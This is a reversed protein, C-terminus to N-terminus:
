ASARSAILAVRCPAKRLVDRITGQVRRGGCAGGVVLLKADTGVGDRDDERRLEDEVAGRPQQM